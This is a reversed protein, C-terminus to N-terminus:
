PIIRPPSVFLSEMNLCSGKLSTMAFIINGADVSSPVPAGFIKKRHSQVMTDEPPDRTALKSFASPLEEAHYESVAFWTHEILVFLLWDLLKSLSHKLSKGM